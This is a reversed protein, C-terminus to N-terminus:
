KKKNKKIYGAVVQILVYHCGRDRSSARGLETLRAGPSPGPTRGAITAVPEGPADLVLKGLEVLRAGLIAGVRPGEGEREVRAEVIRGDEVLAARTEGIGAEISWETLRCAPRVSCRAPRVSRCGSSM